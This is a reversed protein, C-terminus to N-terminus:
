LAIAEKSRVEGIILASDGMRLSARIGEAAAMENGGETLASRM